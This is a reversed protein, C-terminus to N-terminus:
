LRQSPHHLNSFITLLSLVSIPNVEKIIKRLFIITKFTSVLRKSDDFEFNPRHIVIDDRVEYFVEREIGYLILHVHYKKTGAFYNVLESMVREMGGAQLSHIVFCVSKNEM